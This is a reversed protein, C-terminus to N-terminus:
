FHGGEVQIKYAYAWLSGTSRPDILHQLPMRIQAEWLYDLFRHKEISEVIASNFPIALIELGRMWILKTSFDSRSVEIRELHWVSDSLDGGQTLDNNSESVRDLSGPGEKEMMQLFSADRFIEPLGDISNGPDNFGTSVLSM